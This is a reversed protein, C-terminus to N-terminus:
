VSEAEKATQSVEEDEKEWGYERGHSLVLYDVSNCWISFSTSEMFNIGKGKNKFLSKKIHTAAATLFISIPNQTIM